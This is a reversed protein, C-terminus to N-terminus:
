YLDPLLYSINNFSVIAVGLRIKGIDFFGNAVLDAEEEELSGFSTWHDQWHNYFNLSQYNKLKDLLKGAKQSMALLLFNGYREQKLIARLPLSKFVFKMNIVKIRSVRGSRNIRLKM